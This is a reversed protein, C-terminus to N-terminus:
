YWHVIKLIMAQIPLSFPSSVNKEVFDNQVYYYKCVNNQDIKNRFHERILCKFKIQHISSLVNGNM